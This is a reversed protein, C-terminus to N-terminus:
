GSGVLPDHAPGIVRDTYILRPRGVDRRRRLGAGARASLDVGDMVAIRAGFRVLRRM